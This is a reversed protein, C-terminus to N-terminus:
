QTFVLSQSTGGLHIETLKAVGKGDEVYDV